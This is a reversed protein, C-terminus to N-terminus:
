PLSLYHCVRGYVVDDLVADLQSVAELVGGTKVLGGFGAAVQWSVKGVM